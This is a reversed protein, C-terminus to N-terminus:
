QSVVASYNIFARSTGREAGGFVWHRDVVRGHNYKRRGFKSKDIELVKDPGGITVPNDLFYQRCVDRCFNYWNVVVRKSIGCEKVAKSVKDQVAWWYMFKLLTCLPLRSMSFFSGDRVSKVAQCGKMPCRWFFIGKKPIFRCQSSCKSCTMSTKLLNKQQLWTIITAEDLLVTTLFSDYTWSTSTSTSTAM